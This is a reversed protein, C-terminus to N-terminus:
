VKTENEKEITQPIFTSVFLPPSGAQFLNQIKFKSSPPKTAQFKRNKKLIAIANYQMTTYYDKKRKSHTTQPLSYAITNLKINPRLFVPFFKEHLASAERTSKPVVKYTTVLSIVDMDTNM